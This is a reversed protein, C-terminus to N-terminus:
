FNMMNIQYHVDGVWQNRRAFHLSRKQIIRLRRGTNNILRVMIIIHSSSNHHIDM